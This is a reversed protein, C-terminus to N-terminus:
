HNTEQFTEYWGMFEKRTEQKTRSLLELTSENYVERDRIQDLLEVAISFLNEVDNLSIKNEELFPTQKRATKADTHALMKNRILRVRQIVDNYKELKYGLVSYISITDELEKPKDFVKALGLLYGAELSLLLTNWTLAFKKYAEGDVKEHMVRNLCFQRYAFLLNNVLIGFDEAKNM